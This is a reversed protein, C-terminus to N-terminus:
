FDQKHSKLRFAIKKKRRQEKYFERSATIIMIIGGLFLFVIAVNDAIWSLVLGMKPITYRVVGIVNDAFVFEADPETNEIGQTRFARAGSNEYNEIISIVRHTIIANDARIFTIDDGVQITGPEVVKVIVLSGQPIERQMSNTVVKYGSYGFVRFSDASQGNSVLAVIVTVIIVTYFIIDSV